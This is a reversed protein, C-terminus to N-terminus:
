GGVLRQRITQLRERTRRNFGIAGRILTWARQRQPEDLGALQHLLADDIAELQERQGRGSDQLIAQLAQLAPTSAVWDQEAVPRTQPTPTAPNHATVPPAPEPQGLVGAPTPLVQRDRFQKLNPLYATEERPPQNKWDLLMGLTRLRPIEWLGTGEPVPSTPVSRNYHEVIAKRFAERAEALKGDQEAQELWGEAALSKYRKVPDYLTTAAQIRVSGMGLPKGMGLHHRYDAPLELAALLAGLELKDLNEFRVRGRFEMGPKVPRVVTYQKIHKTLPELRLDEDASGRHWYLKFGRLATTTSGGSDPPLASYSLLKEKRGEPDSQVLYNQYSTPKPTSLVAPWRIGGNGEMFPSGSGVWKADDFRVRGKHSGTQPRDERPEDNVTGFIAEALDLSSDPDVPAYDGTYNKYPLRFFLTPGTFELKNSADLLYFLPDGPRQIKRCAIGRQQDRDECFQEWMAEPIPIAPAKTDQEYIVTHMHRSGMPGSYILKGPEMGAPVTAPSATRAVLNDTRAYRLTLGGRHTYAKVPEPKVWVDVVKNEEEKSFGHRELTELKVRVFSVGNLKRAPRIQWEGATRGAELYGAQVRDSPYDFQMPRIRKLFRENYAQGTPTNQDAVARHVLKEDLIRVARGKGSRRTLRSYALIEVLARAMGRLSSGPIVPHREDGLHYFAQRPRSQQVTQEEVAPPYACRTYLETETTITLEIFGHLREPDLRDHQRFPETHFIAEPLPVFNYPAQGRRSDLAPTMHEPLPM